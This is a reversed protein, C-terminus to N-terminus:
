GFIEVVHLRVRDKDAGEGGRGPGLEKGIRNPQNGVDAADKGM